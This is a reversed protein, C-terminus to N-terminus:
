PTDLDTDTESHPEEPSANGTGVSQFSAGHGAARGAAAAAAAQLMRFSSAPVGAAEALAAEVRQTATATREMDALMRLVSAPVGVASALEAEMRNAEAAMRLVSAQGASWDTEHIPPPDAEELVPESVAETSFDFRSAIIQADLVDRADSISYEVLLILREREARDDGWDVWDFTVDATLNFKIRRQWGGTQLRRETSEIVSWDGPAALEADHTSTLGTMFWLDSVIQPGNDFLAAMVTEVETDSVTFPEAPGAFRVPVEFLSIKTCIALTAKGRIQDIEEALRPHLDTSNVFAKDATMFVIDEGPAAAAVAMVSFWHLTDRYGNGNSDFPPRREAARLSVVDHPIEPTTLIEFGAKSLITAADYSESWAKVEAAAQEFAQRVEPSARDPMKPSVDLRNARVRTNLEIVAIAPVVVRLVGSEIAREIQRWKGGTLSADAVLINADLILIV